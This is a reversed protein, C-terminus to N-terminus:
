EERVGGVNVTRNRTTQCGYCYFQILWRGTYHLNGSDDLRYNPENGCPDWVCKHIQENKMSQDYDDIM